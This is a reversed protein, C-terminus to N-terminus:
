QIRRPMELVDREIQSELTQALRARWEPTFRGARDIMSLRLALLVARREAPAGAATVQRFIDDFDLSHFIPDRGSVLGTAALPAVTLPPTGARAVGISSGALVVALVASWVVSRATM